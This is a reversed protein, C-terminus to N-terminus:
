DREGEAQSPRPPSASADLDGGEAASPHPARDESTGSQEAAIESEYDETGATQSYQDTSTVGRGGSESTVDEGLAEEREELVEREHQSPETRPDM